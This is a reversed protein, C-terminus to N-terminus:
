NDMVTPCRYGAPSLRCAVRDAVSPFQVRTNPPNGSMAYRAVFDTEAAIRIVTVAMMPSM